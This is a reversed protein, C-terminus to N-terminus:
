CPVRCVSPSPLWREPWTRRSLPPRRRRQGGSTGAIRRATAGSVSYQENSPGPPRAADPGAFDLCRVSEFWWGCCRVLSLRGLGVVEYGEGPPGTGHRRRAVPRAGGTLLPAPLGPPRVALLTALAEPGADLAALQAAEVLPPGCPPPPPVCQQPRHGPSRAARGDPTRRRAAAHGVPARAPGCLAAQARLDAMARPPLLGRHGGDGDGQQLSLARDQLAQRATGIEGVPDNALLVSLHYPFPLAHVMGEPDPREVLLHRRVLDALQAVVQERDSAAAGVLWSTDSDFHLRACCPTPPLRATGPGACLPSNWCCPRSCRRVANIARYLRAGGPSDRGRGGASPLHHQREATM